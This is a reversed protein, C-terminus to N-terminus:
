KAKRKPKQRMDYGLLIFFFNDRRLFGEMFKGGYYGV